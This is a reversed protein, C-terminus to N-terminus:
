NDGRIPNRNPPLPTDKPIPRIPIKILPVTIPIRYLERIKELPIKVKAVWNQPLPWDDGLVNFIKQTFIEPSQIGPGPHLVPSLSQDFQLTLEYEGRPLFIYDNCFRGIVFATTADPSPLFTLALELPKRRQRDRPCNDSIHIHWIRLKGTVRQWNVPEPTRIWLATTRGKDNVIVEVCTKKVKTVLGEIKEMTGSNFRVKSNESFQVFQIGTLADLSSFFQTISGALIWDQPATDLEDPLPYTIGGSKVTLINITDGPKEKRPKEVEFDKLFEAFSQITPPCEKLTHKGILDYYTKIMSSEITMHDKFSIFASIECSWSDLLSESGNQHRYLLTVMAPGKKPFPTNYEIAQNKELTLGKDTRWQQYSKSGFIESDPYAKPICSQEVILNSAGDQNDSEYTLRYVIPDYIRDMYPVNFRVVGFYGRYAPFGVGQRSPNWLGDAPVVFIRNDGITTSSIYPRLTEPNQVYFEQNMTWTIPVAEPLPDETQVSDNYLRADEASSEGEISVRYKGPTFVTSSIHTVDYTGPIQYQIAYLEIASKSRNEITIESVPQQPCFTILFIRYHSNFQDITEVPKSLPGQSSSQYGNIEIHPPFEIHAILILTISNVLFSSNDFSSFRVKFKNGRLVRTSLYNKFRHLLTAIEEADIIIQDFRREGLFTEPEGKGFSQNVYRDYGENAFESATSSPILWRFPDTSPLHLRSTGTGPGAAWIGNINDLTQNKVLDVIEIKKITHSVVYGGQVDPNIKQGLIKGTSDIVRRNFPIVIEIDPWAGSLPSDSTKSLDWQRGTIPHIAGLTEPIDYSPGANPIVKGILMPSQLIPPVLEEDSYSYEVKIPIDDLPWPLPITLEIYFKLQTPSPTSGSAGAKLTWIMSIKFKWIKLRIGYQGWLIFEGAIRGPNWGILAAVRFGLRAIFTIIWATWEGGIDAGAGFHLRNNNMMLFIEANVLEKIFSAKIPSSNTGFNLYWLRPDEFSFFGEVLGTAKFLSKDGKETFQVDWYLGLAISGSELDAAAYGELTPTEFISGFGGLIFVPGPSIFAFGLKDLRFIKGNAAITVLIGHIGIGSACMEIPAPQWRDIDRSRRAWDVFDKANTETIQEGILDDTPKPELTTPFEGVPPASKELRPYFNCALEGGIGKLGLGTPGLQLPVPWEATLGFIAGWENLGGFIELGMDIPIIKIQGRGLWTKNPSDYGLAIGGSFCKERKFNLDVVLFRFKKILIVKDTYTSPHAIVVEMRTFADPLYAKSIKFRGRVLLVIEEPKKELVKILPEKSLIQGTKWGDYLSALQDRVLVTAQDYYLPFPGGSGVIVTTWIVDNVLGNIVDEFDTM